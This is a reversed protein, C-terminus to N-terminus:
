SRQNNRAGRPDSRRSRETHFLERQRCPNQSCFLWPLSPFRNPAFGERDGDHSGTTDHVPLQLSATRDKRRRRDRLAEHVQAPAFRLEARRFRQLGAPEPVRPSAPQPLVPRGKEEGRPCVAPVSIQAQFVGQEAAPGYDSQREPRRAVVIAADPGPVDSRPHRGASQRAEAM